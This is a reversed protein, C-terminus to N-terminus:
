QKRRKAARELLEVVPLKEGSLFSMLSGGSTSVHDLQDAFGGENAAAVLHGGGIVTFANSEVMAELIGNTGEAFAPKEFVGVPGNAVVTKANKILKSYEEVTKDGIDYIIMDSPLDEVSLLEAKGEKTELRLDEPLKIKGRYSSLINKGRDIEEEYGKESLIRFNPDGLELGESALLTQAVLGGALVRDAIGRKLVHNTLTLSDEVKAGGLVYLCPHEPERGRELGKLELEMLRGAASPLTVGFGVLSPQSRHAAAFADNVYLDMLPSLKRVLHTKAQEEPPKNIVEESYFRSNELLLIEGSELESITDRAAKGFIDDVYKVPANLVQSMAEAHKELTTFDDSGPRGQHAIVVVKAGKEVLEKLTDSCMRIRTDDLIEGTEPEIPSNIDVRVLVTKGKVDFDNLTLFFMGDDDRFM